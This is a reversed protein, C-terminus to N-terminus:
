RQEEEGVGRKKDMSWRLEDAPMEVPVIVPEKHSSLESRPYKSALESIGQGSKEYLPASDLVTPDAGRQPEQWQATEPPPSRRNRKVRNLYFLIAGLIAALVALGGIVGGAIAGASSHKKTAAPSSTAPPSTTVATTTTNVQGFLAALQASVFGEPPAITKAGGSSSGGILQVVADPVVYDEDGATYTSGWDMTSMDLIAVGKSEWDCASTLKTTDSGGITIM